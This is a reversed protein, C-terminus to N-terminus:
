ARSLGSLGQCDERGCVDALFCTVAARSSWMPEIEDLSRALRARIGSSNCIRHAYPPGTGVEPKGIPTKCISSGTREYGQSLYKDSTVEFTAFFPM